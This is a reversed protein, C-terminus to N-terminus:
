KRNVLFAAGGVAALIFGSGCCSYGYGYSGECQNICNYYETSADECYGYDYDWYGGNAWCCSEECDSQAFALPTLATLLAMALLLNKM